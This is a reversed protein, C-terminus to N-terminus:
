MGRLSPLQKRKGKIIPAYNAFTVEEVLSTQRSSSFYSRPSQATSVLRTGTSSARETEAASWRSSARESQESEPPRPSPQGEEGRSETRSGNFASDSTNTKAVDETQSKAFSVQKVPRKKRRKVRQEKDVDSDNSSLSTQRVLGVKRSNVNPRKSKGKSSPQNKQERNTSYNKENLDHRKADRAKKSKLRKKDKANVHNNLAVSQTSDGKSTVYEQGFGAWNKMTVESNGSNESPTLKDRQSSCPPSLERRDFITSEVEDFESAVVTLPTASRGSVQRSGPPTYNDEEHDSMPPQTELPIEEEVKVEEEENIKIEEGVVKNEEEREVNEEQNHEFSEDERNPTELPTIDRTDDYITPISSMSANLSSTYHTLADESKEDEIQEEEESVDDEDDDDDDDDDDDENDDEVLSSSSRSTRATDKSSDENEEDTKNDKTIVSDIDSDVSSSSDSDEESGGDNEISESTSRDAHVSNGEDESEFKKNEVELSKDSANESGSPQNIKLNTDKQTLNKPSRTKERKSMDELVFINASNSEQKGKDDCIAEKEKSEEEHLSHKLITEDSVFDISEGDGASRFSAQRAITDKLSTQHRATQRQHKKLNEETLPAPSDGQSLM